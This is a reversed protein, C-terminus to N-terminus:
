RMKIIDLHLKPYKAKFMKLKLAFVPTIIGKVDEITVVGGIRYMFDAVYEIKRVRKGDCGTMGEQLTFRPQLALDRIAGSSQLAKLEVYRKAEATSDFTIGDVEKKRASYKHRKPEIGWIQPRIGTPAEVQSDQPAIGLADSRRYFDALEAETWSM